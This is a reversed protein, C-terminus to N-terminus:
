PTFNSSEWHRAEAEREREWKWENDIKKEQAYDM